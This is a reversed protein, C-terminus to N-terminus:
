LPCTSVTASQSVTDLDCHPSTYDSTVTEVMDVSDSTRKCGSKITHYIMM